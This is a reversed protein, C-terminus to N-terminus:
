VTPAWRPDPVYGLEQLTTDADATLVANGGIHTEMNTTHIVWARDSMEVGFTSSPVTGIFAQAASYMSRGTQDKILISFLNTNDRTQEDLALLASFVDNSESSQHLTITIDASKVRRVVRAHSGDAGTTMTAHAVLRSIDIFTGETYGGVVHNFGDSKSIVVIVDEPSYTGMVQTQQAM